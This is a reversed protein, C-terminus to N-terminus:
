KHLKRHLVPFVWAARGQNQPTRSEAVTLSVAIGHIQINYRFSKVCDLSMVVVNSRRCVHLAQM